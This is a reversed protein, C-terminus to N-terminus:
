QTAQPTKGWVTLYIELGAFSEALFEGQFQQYLSDFEAETAVGVNLVFAKLLSFVISYNKYWGERRLTYANHEIPHAKMQVDTFDAERLLRPLHNIIGIHRGDPDFSRKTKALAKAYFEWLRGAAASNTLGETFETLRVIGGPRLVRQCEGLLKPWQDPNMFGVITRANVLDFSADNFDLPQTADILHLHVNEYGRERAHSAAEELATKSVDIGTVTLDPYTGAVALIWDGPGCGIDLISKIDSPLNTYESFLGGMGETLLPGILRLWELETPSEEIVFRNNPNTTM